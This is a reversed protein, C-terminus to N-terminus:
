SRASARRQVADVGLVIPLIIFPSVMMMLGLGINAGSGDPNWQYRVGSYLSYGWLSLTLALGILWPLLRTAGALALGLYPIAVLLANVPAVDWSFVLPRGTLSTFLAAKAAVVGVGISLAIIVLWVRAM